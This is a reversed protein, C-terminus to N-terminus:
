TAWLRGTSEKAIVLTETKWGNITTPFGTDLKYTQNATDYSYRYLRGGASSEVATNTFAHSAVYLKTGDWLVDARTGSRNDLMVGTNTWAQTLPDLRFIFNDGQTDDWMSAWWRGDNWWVKSEPKAGTVAAGTGSYPFGEYGVDGPNAGAPTPHVAGVLLTAACALFVVVRRQFRSVLM